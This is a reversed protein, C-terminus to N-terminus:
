PNLLLRNEEIVANLRELIIGHNLTKRSVLIALRSRSLECWELDKVPHDALVVSLPEIYDLFYDGRDRTLMGLGARHHPAYRIDTNGDNKLFDLKGLYTYGSMLILRSGTLDEFACNQPLDGFGFAALTLEGLDATTEVTSEQLRPMDGVGAWLDIEGNKLQLFVRAPPLERWDIRYGAQRVVQETLSIYYGAPEGKMDTYTLPPFNVYAAKLPPRHLSEPAGAQVLETMLTLSLAAMWIQFAKM